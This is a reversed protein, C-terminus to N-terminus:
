QEMQMTKIPSYKRFAIAKDSWRVRYWVAFIMDVNYFTTPKNFGIDSNGVKSIVLSQELEGDKFINNIHETITTRWKWFLEAIQEQTMWVSEDKVLVKIIWEKTQYFTILEKNM